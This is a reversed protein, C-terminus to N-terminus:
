QAAASLEVPAVIIKHQDRSLRVLSKEHDHGLALIINEDIVRNILERKVRMTQMPYLDVSAVYPAKVHHSTPVIDCYAAVTEGDSEIEYAQHGATHGGTVVAQIGPAIETDGDLTVLRGSDSLAKVRLPSYAAASREDPQLADALEQRQVFYSANPFRPVLEGDREKLAGGAHDTHLHTLLVGDIDGTTVGLRALESDLHSDNGASYIKQEIKTLCEGLGTDILYQKGGARLHYLTCSMPIFNNDDVPLMKGWIKKPVVGFMSGGDLYFMHEVLPSITFQGFRYTMFQANNPTTTHPNASEPRM